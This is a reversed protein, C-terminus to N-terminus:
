RCSSCQRSAGSSLGSRSAGCKCRPAPRFETRRRPPLSAAAAQAFARNTSSSRARSSLSASPLPSPRPPARSCRAADGAARVGRVQELPHSRAEAALADAVSEHLTRAVAARRDYSEELLVPDWEVALSDWSALGRVPASGPPIVCGRCRLVWACRSCAGTTRDTRRLTFGWWVMTSIDVSRADRPPQRPEGAVPLHMRIFRQCHQAVLGYLEDGTIAGPLVRLVLPTGFPATSLSPLFFLADASAAPPLAAPGGFSHLSGGGGAGPLRTNALQAPVVVGDITESVIGAAAAGARQKASFVFPARGSRPRVFSRHELLLLVPAPTRPFIGTGEVGAQLSGDACVEVDYRLGADRREVVAAIVGPVLPADAGGPSQRVLVPSGVVFAPHLRSYLAASVAEPSGGDGAGAAFVGEGGGQISVAAPYAAVARELTAEVAAIGRRYVAEFAAPSAVAYAVLAAIEDDRITTDLVGADSLPASSVIASGNARVLVLQDPGLVDAGALPAPTPSGSCNRLPLAIRTAAGWDVVMVVPRRPSPAHWAPEEKAPAGRSGDGSLGRLTSPLSAGEAAAAAAHQQQKQQQLLDRLWTSAALAVAAKLDAITAGSGAILRATVVLPPLVNAPWVLTVTFARSSSNPLPLSLMSFPEFCASRHGCATCTLTSRFQGSFLSTVISCERSVHGRWWEDAVAADDRGGSDPQPAYPKKKVRNLDENLLSLLTALADQSALPYIPLRFLTTRCLM